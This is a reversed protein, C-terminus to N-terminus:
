KDLVSELRLILDAKLGSVIQGRAKLEVKLEKVTLTKVDVLKLKEGPLVQLDSSSTMESEVLEESHSGPLLDCEEKQEKEKQTISPSKLYKNKWQMRLSQEPNVMDCFDDFTRIDQVHELEQCVRADITDGTQKGYRFRLLRWIHSRERRKDEAPLSPEVVHEASSNSKDLFHNKSLKSLTLPYQVTFALLKLFLSDEQQFINHNRAIAEDLLATGLTTGDPLADHFGVDSILMLAM